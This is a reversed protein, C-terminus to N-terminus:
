WLFWGGPEISSMGAGKRGDLLRRADADNPAPAPTERLEQLRHPVDGGAQYIRTMQM